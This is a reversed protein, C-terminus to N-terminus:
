RISQYGGDVGRKSYVIQWLHNRHARFGGAAGLLFFRWMRYFSEDYGAQQLATKNVDVNAMWAM